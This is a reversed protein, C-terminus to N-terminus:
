CTPRVHRRRDVSQRGSHQSEPEAMALNRDPTLEINHVDRAHAQTDAVVEDDTAGRVVYGCDCRIVQDIRAGM